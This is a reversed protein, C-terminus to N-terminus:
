AAHAFHMWSDLAPMAAMMAAPLVLLPTLDPWVSRQRNNPQATPSWFPNYAMWDAVGNGDAARANTLLAPQPQAPMLGAWFLPQNVNLAFPSFASALRTFDRMAREVALINSLRSFYANAASSIRALSTTSSLLFRRASHVGFETLLGDLNPGVREMDIYHKASPRQTVAPFVLQKTGAQLQAM